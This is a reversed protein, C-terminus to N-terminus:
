KVKNIKAIEKKLMKAIKHEQNKYDRKVKEM